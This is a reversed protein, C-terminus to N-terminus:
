IAGVAARRRAKSYKDFLALFMVKATSPSMPNIISPMPAIGQILPWPVDQEPMLDSRETALMILDAAHICQPIRFPLDFRIAIARWLREEIEAYGILALKVLRTVDSIYAETADHLLATLRQDVPVFDSVWCCHEAVSYFTHTHGNFRATNSLAHAIDEIRILTPDPNIPDFYIGSHTLIAHSHNLNTM